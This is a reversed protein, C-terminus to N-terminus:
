IGTRVAIKINAKFRDQKITFGLPMYDVKIYINGLIWNPDIRNSLNYLHKASMGELLKCAWGWFM